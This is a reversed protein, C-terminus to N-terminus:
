SVFLTRSSLHAFSNKNEGIRILQNQTQKKKLRIKFKKGPSFFIYNFPLNSGVRTDM